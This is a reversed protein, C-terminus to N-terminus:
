YIKNLLLNLKSNIKELINKSWAILWHRRNEPKTFIYFDNEARATEVGLVVLNNNLIKEPINIGFGSYALKKFKIKRNEWNQNFSYKGLSAQIESSAVTLIKSDELLSSSTQNKVWTWDNGIKKYVEDEEISKEGHDYKIKQVAKGDPSRLELKNRTNTLTFGCIDRLLKKSKGAKIKFDERIPHNILNKWGTAVSWNKLNIAFM